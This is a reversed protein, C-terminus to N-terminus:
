QFFEWLINNEIKFLGTAEVIAIAFLIGSNANNIEFKETM